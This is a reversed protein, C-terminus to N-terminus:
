QAEALTKNLQVRYYSGHDVERPQLPQHQGFDGRHEHGAVKQIGAPQSQKSADCNQHPQYDAPVHEPECAARGSEHVQKTLKPAQRGIESIEWWCNRLRSITGVQKVESSNSFRTNCAISGSSSLAGINMFSLEMRRIKDAAATEASIM